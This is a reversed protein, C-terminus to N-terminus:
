LTDAADNKGRGVETVCALCKRPFRAKFLQECEKLLSAAQKNRLWYGLEFAARAERLM